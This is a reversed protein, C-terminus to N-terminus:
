RPKLPRDLWPRRQPRGRKPYAEAYTLGAELRERDLSPYDELLEEASAGQKVLEALMHVPIRTGRLVPEGGRIGPESVVLSRAKSLREARAAVDRRADSVDVTIPGLTVISAGNREERLRRYVHKKAAPLLVGSVERLLRLYVLEPEGVQRVVAGGRRLRRSAINGEDIAKQVAKVPRGVIYAAETPSYLTAETSM